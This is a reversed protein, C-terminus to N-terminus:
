PPRRPRRAPAAPRPAGAGSGRRRARDARVRAREDVGRRRGHGAAGRRGGDLGVARTGLRRALESGHEATRNALAVIEAGRSLLNRATLESMKGAGLLLVRRGRSSASSRSRSRLLPRRCRPPREGRDGDGRAGQPRREGGAPVPPPPVPRDRGVRAAARVQGLIEGEGPVLSDLGGAVRFLHLAAAEDRLRYLVRKSSSPGTTPLRSCRGPRMPKATRPRARSTSSRGTAPRSSSRRARIRWGSLWRVRLRGPRAGRARAARGSRSPALRRRAVLKM